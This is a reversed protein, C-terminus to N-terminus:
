TSNVTPFFRFPRSWPYVRWSGSLIASVKYSCPLVTQRATGTVNALGCAKYNIFSVFCSLLRYNVLSILNLLSHNNSLRICRTVNYCPRLQSPIGWGTTAPQILLPTLSPPRRPTLWQRLDDLLKVSPWMDSNRERAALSRFWSGDFSWDRSRQQQLLCNYDM